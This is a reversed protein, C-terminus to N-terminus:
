IIDSDRITKYMLELSRLDSILGLLSSEGIKKRFPSWTLAINLEVKTKGEGKEEFRLETNSRAFFYKEQFIMRENESSSVIKFNHRSLSGYRYKKEEVESFKKEFYGYVIEVPVEIEVVEQFEKVM